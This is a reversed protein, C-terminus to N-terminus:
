TLSSLKIRVQEAGPHHLEELVTLARRWADRAAYSAGTAQHSDGLHTLIVAQNYRDGTQGLLDLAQRYCTMAQRHDGLHHYAYGLSDWIEAEGNPSGLARSLDLSQRCFIVTQRHDGLLSHYWGIMNLAAMEGFRHGTARFLALSEEAHELAERHRGQQELVWALRQHAGAQGTRDDLRRSLELAQHLHSHAARYGGLPSHASGLNRHARAQEALDGLREAAGLATTQTAVADPWDGRRDLYTGLSWPLQYAHADFGRKAAHEIATLLVAHEAELWSWAQDGDMLAEPATGPQPPALTVPQRGPNLWREAVFATHLYHDLIRHLAAHREDATDSTRALEAAYARLLDHFVYRGPVHETLLHAAALENLAARAEDRGTAALSAAAPVTIDPGPHVGLLRFMRAACDGLGNYSWSFVARVNAAADGADLAALPGPADRLQGALAALPLNPDAVARAAAINLALPLRACLGILTEVADPELGVREAGLRRSMLERADGPTLLDLALPRAGEVAVLGTLRERSTVLVLCGSAGPLLPRIQEADRANDLVILMRRDALLSRYLGAQADPDPDGMQAPPVGLAALFGRLAAGARMATGTQDFGRLNVYLQGDPFSEAAQQGWHVALATKGIGATGNIVVTGRTGDVQGALATLAKLEDARGTFHPVAAPLQRPVAAKGAAAGGAAWPAEDQRPSPAALAPDDALIQRHLQQLARGPDAGLETALRERVQQYLRLADAQRGSRFLALMLQGVLREDLPHEEAWGSLRALLAGHRGQLLQIDTADREAARREKELAVRISNLWPTDLADLAEGRWLGLAREFLSLADTDSDAARAHEVLSRFEHVDVLREDVNIMYGSSQRVIAVDGVVALARRLLSVYTQVANRPHDPLRRDGWVREVLQDTSVRRNAALLLVTLVGRQRAPGVDVLQDNDLRVEVPGLLHFEAVAEGM